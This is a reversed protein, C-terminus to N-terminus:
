AQDIHEECSHVVHCLRQQTKKKKLSEKALAILRFRKEKAEPLCKLCPSFTAVNKVLIDCLSHDRSLTSFNTEESVEQCLYGSNLDGEPGIDKM